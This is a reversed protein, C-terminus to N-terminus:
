YSFNAWPGATAPDNSVPGAKNNPALDYDFGNNFTAKNKVVLNFGADAKIGRGNNFANNDSIQNDGGFVYIGGSNSLGAANASVSNGTILCGSSARIGSGANASAVCDKIRCTIDASIGNSSNLSATCSSILCNSSASIGHLNGNATCGSITAGDTVRIGSGGNTTATCGSITCGSAADIGTGSNQRATCNKITSGKAANIGVNNNYVICDSIVAGEGASIGFGTQGNATCGSISCGQGTGIGAGNFLLVCDRVVCNLGVGLAFGGINNYLRLNEFRSNSAGGGNIANPWGDVSGNRIHLDHVSFQVHVASFANSVGILSFGNLDLTVNSAQIIIGFQGAVGTLNTTLYYSGSNSITIPVSSIAIRPEVQALTKMMPAPAGPPTLNGQAFANSLYTLSWLGIVAAHFAPKCPVM